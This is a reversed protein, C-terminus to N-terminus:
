EERSVVHPTVWVQYLLYCALYLFVDIAPGAEPNHCSYFFGVTFAVRWSIMYTNQATGRQCHAATGIWDMLHRSSVAGIGAGILFHGASALLFNENDLLFLMSLVVVYSLGVIQRQSVRRRVYLQALFAFLVGLALSLYASGDPFGGVIRGMLWPAAFMSLTLPFSRPLLFRDLTFLPVRVPAKLPISTQAILLFALVCPLLAWGYMRPAGALLSLVYGLFLGLPIGIRGAWAYILDGRNRERSLLVDNVLTSGLATQAIGFALGQLGQVAILWAPSSAWVYGLTGVGGLALIAKLCIAKRSRQEMLYASFPGPVIMGAAFAVLAWGMLLPSAEWASLQVHLLPITSFVYIHLFWNAICMNLFRSGSLQSHTQSSM